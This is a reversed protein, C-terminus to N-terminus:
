HGHRRGTRPPHPAISRSRAPDLSPAALVRGALRGILWHLHGLVTFSATVTTREAWGGATVTALAAGAAALGAM